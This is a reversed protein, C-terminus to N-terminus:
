SNKLRESFEDYSLKGSECEALKERAREGWAYFDEAIGSGRRLRAFRKKYERRYEKFVEDAGHGKLWACSFLVPFSTLELKPAAQAKRSTEAHPARHPIFDRDVRQGVIFQM